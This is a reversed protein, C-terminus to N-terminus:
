FVAVLDAAEICVEASRVQQFQADTRGEATTLTNDILSLLTPMVGSEVAAAAGTTVLGFESWCLNAARRSLSHPGNARAM